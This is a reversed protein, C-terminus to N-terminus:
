SKGEARAIAGCVFCDGDPSLHCGDSDQCGVRKLAALLEPAAAILTADAMSCNANDIVTDAPGDGYGNVGAAIWVARDGRTSAIHWKGPTHKTKEDSMTAGKSQDVDSAEDGGADRRRQARAEEDTM